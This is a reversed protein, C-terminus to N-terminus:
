ASVEKCLLWAPEAHGVWVSLGTASTTFAVKFPEFYTTQYRAHDGYVTRLTSPWPAKICFFGEGPGKIEKGQLLDFSLWRPSAPHFPQTAENDRAPTVRSLHM